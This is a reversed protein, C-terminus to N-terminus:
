QNKYKNIIDTRLANYTDYKIELRYLGFPIGNQICVYPHISLSENNTETSITESAFAIDYDTSPLIRMIRYCKHQNAFFRFCRGELCRRYIETYIDYYMKSYTYIEEKKEEEKNKLEIINKELKRLEEKKEIILTNYMDYLSEM